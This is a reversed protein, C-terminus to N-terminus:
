KAAVLDSPSVLRVRGTDDFKIGVRGDKVDTFGVLTGEAGRNRKATPNTPEVRYRRGVELVVRRSAKGVFAEVVRQTVDTFM